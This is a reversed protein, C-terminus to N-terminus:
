MDYAIRKMYNPCVIVEENLCVGNVIRGAVNEVKLLGHTYKLGAKVSAVIKDNTAIFYPCVTTTHIYDGHGQTYMDLTLTEMFGCVAFKSASYTIATPLGALGFLSAISVIHGQRREIMGPLFVKTTQFPFLLENIFRAKKDRREREKDHM